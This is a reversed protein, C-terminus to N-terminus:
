QRSVLVEECIPALRALADEVSVSKGLEVELSTVEVGKIGCSVLLSFLELDPNVNLALGHYSVWGKVAVGAFGIKRGMVWAGTYGERREGEIGFDVLTKLMVEELMRMYDKLGLGREKLRLIPYAVLQGPCHLMVDGGREVDVVEIGRGKLDAASLLVNGEGTGRGVTIVPPHQCFFLAEEGKAGILEDVLQKQRRYMDQYAILGLDITKM